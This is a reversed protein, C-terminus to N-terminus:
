RLYQPLIERMSVPTIGLEAIGMAEPGVVNDRALNKIQDRTIPTPLRDGSVARAMDSSLAMAQAIGGPLALILRKRGLVELMLEMAERFTVVDPGGLEYVTHTEPAELSALAAKAVDGVFVPQFRTDAGVLPLFPSIRTMAAFRNFFQDGSGFIVSPRLIVAQPMHALVGAEGQAKTQAYEAQGQPDAGIASVHVMQEVGAALALRSILRPAEAQVAAFTNERASILIGVCNIVAKAGAVARTVARDDLVNTPMWEVTAPLTAKTDNMEPTNTSRQALRVRWGANAAQHAIERGVFGSGGFITMLDSM